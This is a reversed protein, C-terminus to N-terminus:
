PQGEGSAPTSAPPKGGADQLKLELMTRDVQPDAEAALAAAYEARAGENDGKAILADGRIERMQMAFAGASEVNLLALAEDYKGQQVLLRATRLRAIQALEADESESSVTELLAIAEDFRGADVHTKALMLRAQQTYPSRPHDAALKDLVGKADDVHNAQLEGAFEQYVTAAQAARRDHHKNWYTWGGLLGFGLVVGGVMWRWNERWWSRLAEEQERDSLYDEVM